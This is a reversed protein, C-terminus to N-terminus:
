LIKNGYNYILPNKKCHQHNITISNEFFKQANEYNKKNSCFYELLPENKAVKDSTKKYLKMGSSFDLSSNAYKKVSGLEVLGLGLIYTNMKQIIGSKNSKIIKKYKPIHKTKNIRGGQSSVFSNFKEYAKGTKIVNNILKTNEKGDRMIFAQNCLHYILKKLDSPSNGKLFEISEEVECWLGASMGLPQNMDTINISIDINFYSILKKMLSGLEIAEEINELFAGNGIKLDLVLGQIGESIKKSLISGSILGPSKITNTLSRLKYIKKDALCIQNTQCIINIGIKEVNKKFKKLSLQTNFNHISELKDITGGTHGLGRGAIMPIYFDCSALIPALILSVKDGLGGTSHKDIVYGSLNSFNLKVGSNILTNLYNLSEEFSMGNICVATLWAAMQYDPIKNEVFNNVLLNISEKSTNQKNIKQKIINRISNM